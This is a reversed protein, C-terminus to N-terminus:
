ANPGSKPVGCQTVRNHPFHPVTATFGASSFMATQEFVLQVCLGREGQSGRQLTKWEVTVGDNRDVAAKHSEDM